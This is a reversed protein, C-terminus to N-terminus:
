PEEGERLTKFDSSVTVRDPDCRPEAGGCISRLLATAEARVDALRRQAAEMRLRHIEVEQVALGERLVAREVQASEAETLVVTGPAPPALLESAILAAGVCFFLARRM